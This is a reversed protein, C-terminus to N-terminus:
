ARAKLLQDLLWAKQLDSLEHVIGLREKLYESAEKFGKHQPQTNM